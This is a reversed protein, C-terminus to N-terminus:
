TAQASSARPSSSTATQQTTSQNPAGDPTPSHPGSTRSPASTTPSSNTARGRRTAEALMEVTLDAAIVTGTIGVHDRLAPSRAAPAARLTSLPAAQQHPSNPSRTRTLPATTPSATKGALRAPGFFARTRAADTSPV